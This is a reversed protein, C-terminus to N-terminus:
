NTNEQNAVYRVQEYKSLSGRKGPGAREMVGAQERSIVQPCCCGGRGPALHGAGAGAPHDVPPQDPHAVQHLPEQHAPLQHHRPLGVRELVPPADVQPDRSLRLPHRPHQVQLTPRLCAAHM